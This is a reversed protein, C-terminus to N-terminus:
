NPHIINLKSQTNHFLFALIDAAEEILKSTPKGAGHGASTEIRILAPNNRKNNKQLAAAFKFSHAPVVRDDHDATTIMTAPYSTRKINHLPSYKYLYTFANKDDSRGYDSAWAWGITFKHYRLMDFVGVAPLAVAFLEPRQTMCAGVLLGGNSGGQIALKKASTYKNRILYEAAGIFDDFVNQKKERIGANHWDAGFEGGGRINAVVYIGGNELLPLKSISFSPTISIDFGGYGYLLTPNNGDLKTGKKMTIFMPVRTGDKSTFWEQNTTYADANFDVIPNRFLTSNLTETNISYITGPRTFSTFSYFGVKDNKKGEVGGTTGIGPLNLEKIFKGYIDLIMIQSSANHMYNAFIKGGVISVGSLPDNSEKILDKWNSKSVNAADITIVKQRPADDNTMFILQDDLNDIFDFDHDFSLVVPTIVPNEDQLNSIYVSNGSTSERQSIVLYKEDQTVLAYVNRQANETDSYVLEDNSQDDGIKHFYLSHYVNKSSLGDGSKPNPYRSYYFGNGKWALGSFKIWELKDQLKEGSKTDLIYGTNWDSGGESVLYAMYRGNHSFSVNGLSTTGEKSLKNPDLVVTGENKIDDSGYLVSQSQLGDNKFYYFRKGEKFPSSYREYNWLKELRRQFYPRSEIKQLYSNTVANQAKVWAKTEESNDDELWRYTDAVKVGHYDEVVSDLRSKPYMDTSVDQIANM